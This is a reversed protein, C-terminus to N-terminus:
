SGARESPLLSIDIEAFEDNCLDMDLRIRLPYGGLPHYSVRLKWWEEAILRKVLGFLDDITVNYQGHRNRDIPLGTDEKAVSVVRHERVEVIVPSLGSCLSRWREWFASSSSSPSPGTRELRYRYTGAAAYAKWRSHHEDLTAALRAQLPNTALPAPVAPKSANGTSHMVALGERLGGIVDDRGDQYSRDVCEM